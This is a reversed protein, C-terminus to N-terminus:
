TSLPIEIVSQLQVLITSWICKILSLQQQKSCRLHKNWSLQDNILGTVPTLKRIVSYIWSSGTWSYQKLKTPQFNTSDLYNFNHWVVYLCTLHLFFIFFLNHSEYSVPRKYPPSKVWIIHVCYGFYRWLVDQLIM